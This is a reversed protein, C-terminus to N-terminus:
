SSDLLTLDRITSVRILPRPKLYISDDIVALPIPVNRRDSPPATPQSLTAGELPPPAQQSISPCIHATWITQLRESGWIWFASLYAFCGKAIVRIRASIDYPSGLRLICELKCVTHPHLSANSMPTM